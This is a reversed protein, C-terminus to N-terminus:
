FPETEPIGKNYTNKSENFFRYNGENKIKTKDICIYNIKQSWAVRRMEKFEDHKLDFAGIDQYMCQVGRLTQNFLRLRDSNNRISQRQLGLFSQSIYCVDLDEHSGKTFVEDIQSSKGAGM